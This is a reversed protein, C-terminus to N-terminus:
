DTTTLLKISVSSQTLRDNRRISGAGAREVMLERYSCGNVYLNVSVSAEVWEGNLLCWAHLCDHDSWARRYRPMTTHQEIRTQSVIGVVSLEAPCEQFAYNDWLMARAIRQDASYLESAMTENRNMNLNLSRAGDHTCKKSLTPEDTYPDFQSWKMLWSLAACCPSCWCWPNTIWM